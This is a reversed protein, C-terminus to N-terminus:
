AYKELSYAAIPLKKAYDSFLFEFNTFLTSIGPLFISYKSYLM